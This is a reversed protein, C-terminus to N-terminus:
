RVFSITMLLVRDGSLEFARKLNQLSEITDKKLRFAGFGNETAM